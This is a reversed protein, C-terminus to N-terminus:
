KEQTEDTSPQETSEAEAHKGTTETAVAREYSVETRQAPSSDKNEDGVAVRRTEANVSDKAQEADTTVPQAVAETKEDSNQENSETM